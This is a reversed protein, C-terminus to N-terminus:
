SLEVTALDSKIRKAKLMNSSLISKIGRLVSNGQKQALDLEWLLKVEANQKESIPFAFECFGDPTVEKTRNVTVRNKGRRLVIQYEVVDPNQHFEYDSVWRVLQGGAFKSIDEMAQIRLNNMTIPHKPNGLNPNSVHPFERLEGGFGMLESAVKARAKQIFGAIDGNKSSIAM